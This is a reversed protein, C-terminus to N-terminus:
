MELRAPRLRVVSAECVGCASSSGAATVCHPATRESGDCAERDFSTLPALNAIEEWQRRPGSPQLIRDNVNLRTGYSPRGLGGSVDFPRGQFAPRSVCGGM